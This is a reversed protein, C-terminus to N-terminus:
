YDVGGEFDIMLDAVSRIGHRELCQHLRRRVRSYRLNVLDEELGLLNGVEKAPYGEARMRVLLRDEERAGGAEILAAFCQDLRDLGESLAAQGRQGPPQARRQGAITPPSSGNGRGGSPHRIRDMKRRCKCCMQWVVLSLFYVFPARGPEWRGLRRGGEEMLKLVVEQYLDERDQPGHSFRLVLRDVIGRYRRLLLPVGEEPHDCLLRLLELVRSEEESVPIEPM